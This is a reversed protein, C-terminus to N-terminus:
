KKDEIYTLEDFKIGKDTAYKGFADAYQQLKRNCLDKLESLYPQISDFNKLYVELLKREWKTSNSCEVKWRRKVLTYAPKIGPLESSTSVLNNVNIETEAEEKLKTLKVEIDENVNAKPNAKLLALDENYNKFVEDVMNLLEETLAAEDPHQVENVIELADEQSLYKREYPKPEEMKFGPYDKIIKKLNEINPRVDKSIFDKKAELLFELTKEKIAAVRCINENNVHALFLKKEEAKAHRQVEAIELMERAELLFAKVKKYKNGPIDELELKTKPSCEKGFRAAPEIIIQNVWNRFRLGVGKEPAEMSSYVADYTDLVGSLEIVLDETVEGGREDIIKLCNNVLEQCKLQKKSLFDFVKVKNHHLWLYSVQEESIREVELPNGKDDSEILVLKDFWKDAFKALEIDQKSQTSVAVESM